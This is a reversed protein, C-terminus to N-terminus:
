SGALETISVRAFVHYDSPIGTVDYVSLYVEGNL